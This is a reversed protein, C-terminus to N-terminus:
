KNFCNTGFNDCLFALLTSCMTTLTFVRNLCHEFALFAKKLKQTIAKVGLAYFCQKTVPTVKGSGFTLKLLGPFVSCAFLLHVCMWVFRCVFLCVFLCVVRGRSCMRVHLLFIIIAIYLMSGVKRPARRFVCMACMVWPNMQPLPHLLSTM